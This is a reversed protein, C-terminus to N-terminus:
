KVDRVIAWSRYDVQDATYKRRLGEDEFGMFRMWKDHKVDAIAMTQIRHPQLGEILGDLQRKIGRLFKRPYLNAYVSPLVWVEIVGPWLDTFGIIALIRGDEVLTASTDRTILALIAEQSDMAGMSAAEESRLDFMKLHEPHSPLLM